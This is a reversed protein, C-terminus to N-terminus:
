KDVTNKYYRSTLWSEFNGKDYKCHKVLNDQENLPQLNDLCNILKLDQINYDLFAKIPFIHDLHWNNKDINTWNPHNHIHDKLEKVTYGLLKASKNTKTGNTYKYFNRLMIHCKNRFQKNEKVVQRDVIWNSSNEGSRKEIGCKKCRKGTLFHAFTTESINECSCRYRMKTSCNIYEKELLECGQKKFCDYVYNYELKKPM